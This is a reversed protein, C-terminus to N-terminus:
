PRGEHQESARRWTAYRREWEVLDVPESDCGPKDSAVVWQGLSRALSPAGALLRQVQTASCRGWTGGETALRWVFVRRGRGLRRSPLGRKGRQDPRAIPAARTLPVYGTHPGHRLHGSAPGIVRDGWGATSRPHPPHIAEHIPRDEVRPWRAPLIAACPLHRAALVGRDTFFPRGTVRLAEHRRSPEGPNM